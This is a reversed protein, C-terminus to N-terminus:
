FSIDDDACFDHAPARVSHEEYQAGNAAHSNGEKLQVTDYFGGGNSQNRYQFAALRIVNDNLYNDFEGEQSLLWEAFAHVDALPITLNGSALYSSGGRRPPWLKITLKPLAM